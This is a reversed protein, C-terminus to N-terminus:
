DGSALTAVVGCLGETVRALAECNVKDPTDDETHYHPYRYPATDTVMFARYGERWFSGHDSWDVGQVAAFTACCEVPFDTNARFVAVARQLLSRSRLDSVFAIFNGRDPYFWRFLPPYHQSGPKDSYCGMTELSLMARVDGRERAMKAYVRSGMEATEFFPPEENM